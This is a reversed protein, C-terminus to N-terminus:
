QKLLKKAEKIISDQDLKNLRHLQDRSGMEFVYSDSFGMNKVKINSGKSNLIGLILSDLGGKNIFAEELVILAAYKKLTKYLKDARVPKLLLMDIVGASIGQNKLMDAAKIAKHTMYGTSVFCVNAGNKLECFGEEIKESSNIDYIRPLPKGDFRLYKPKKVKISYDVCKKAIVWDSPSIVEVNPLARMITIDELCHHTPGSVDYSLGAGVGVLNINIEKLQAHLSLNIRIQEYARMVLFPAIAYAYVTFGELALGTAVNILNQEAIGVNIFRDPFSERLRDLKPSGFDACLFFLGRNHEMKSCLGEIFCDRMTQKENNM